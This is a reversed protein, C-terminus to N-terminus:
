QHPTGRQKRSTTGNPNRLFRSPKLRHSPITKERHATSTNASQLTSMTHSQPPSPNGSPPRSKACASWPVNAIVNNSAFRSHQRQPHHPHFRPLLACACAVSRCMKRSATPNSCAPSNSPASTAANPASRAGFIPSSPAAVSPRLCPLGFDSTQAPVLTSASTGSGMGVGIGGDGM